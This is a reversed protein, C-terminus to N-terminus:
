YKKTLFGVYGSQINADPPPECRYDYVVRGQADHIVVYSDELAVRKGPKGKPSWPRLYLKGDRGTEGKVGEQPQPVKDDPISNGYWDLVAKPKTM